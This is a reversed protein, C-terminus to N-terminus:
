KKSKEKALLEELEAETLPFKYPLCLNTKPLLEINSRKMFLLNGNYDYTYSKKNLEKLQELM